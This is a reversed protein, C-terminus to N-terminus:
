KLLVGIKFSKSLLEEAQQNPHVQVKGWALLDSDTLQFFARYLRIQKRQM